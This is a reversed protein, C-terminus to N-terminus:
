NFSVKKKVDDPGLKQPRVTPMVKQMGIDNKIDIEKPKIDLTPSTIKASNATLIAIKRRLERVQAASALQAAGQSLVETRLQECETKLHELVGPLWGNATPECLKGFWRALERRQKECLGELQSIREEYSEILERDYHAAAGVQQEWITQKEHLLAEVEVQKNALERRLRSNTQKMHILNKAMEQRKDEVEAFISNGKAAHPQADQAEATYQHLMAKAEALEVITAAERENAARLEERRLEASARMEGMESALEEVKMRWSIIENRAEELAVKAAAADSLAINVAARAEDLETNDREPSERVKLVQEEKLNCIQNEFKKVEVAHRELIESRESRLASIEEQLSTIRTNLESKRKQEDAQYGELEATLHGQVDLATQYSRKTEYLEQKTIEYSSSLNEFQKRLLYYRESLEGNTIDEAETCNTKNSITSYDM